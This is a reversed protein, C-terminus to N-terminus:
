FSHFSTGRALSGSTIGLHTGLEGEITDKLPLLQLGVSLGDVAGAASGDVDVLAALGERLAHSADQVVVLYGEFRWQVM